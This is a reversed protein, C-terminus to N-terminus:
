AKKFRLHGIGRKSNMGAPLFYILSIYVGQMM